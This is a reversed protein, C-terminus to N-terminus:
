LGGAGVLQRQPPAEGGHDALFLRIRDAWVREDAHGNRAAVMLRLMQNTRPRNQLAQARGALRERIFAIHAELPATSEPGPRHPRRAIQTRVLLDNNSLWRVGAPLDLSEPDFQLLSRYAIRYYDAWALRDDFAREARL